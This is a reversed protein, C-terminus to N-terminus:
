SVEYMSWQYVSTEYFVTYIFRLYVYTKYFVKYFSGQYVQEATYILGGAFRNIQPLCHLPFWVFVNQTFHAELLDVNILFVSHTVEIGCVSQKSYVKM